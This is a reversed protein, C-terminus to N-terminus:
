PAAQPKLRSEEDGDDSELDWYDDGAEEHSNNDNNDPVTGDSEGPRDSYQRALRPGSSLSGGQEEEAELERARAQTKSWILWGTAAGAVMGIGIGLYNIARTKADMKEGSRAIAALRSGIFVHILLKPSAIASALMFSTWQVTPFSAMAGNSLSYPLPCLRIMCLLKLGDHKLTLSLAAFRKDKEVMRKVYNALITRCVVFSTTSGLVTAVAVICWSCHM